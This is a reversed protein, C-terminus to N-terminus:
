KVIWSLTAVAVALLAIMNGKTAEWLNQKHKNKEEIFELMRDIKSEFRLHTAAADDQRVEIAKSRAEIAGMRDFLEKFFTRSVGDIGQDPNPVGNAFMHM